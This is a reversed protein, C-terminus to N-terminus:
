FRKLFLLENSQGHVGLQEFGCRTYLAQARVNAMHTTLLIGGKNQERCWAEATGILTEGFHKGRWREAVAIGLWPIMTDTDWLFVYGVMDDGEVAIWRRMAQTDTGNFYRMIWNYNGNNRNFFARSDPAMQEFFRTVRARDDQEILRIQPAM